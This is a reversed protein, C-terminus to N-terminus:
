HKPNLLVVNQTLVISISARPGSAEAHGDCFLFNGGSKGHNNGPRKGTTSFIDQGPNKPQTDILRDSMLLDQSENNRRGMFYAYSIRKKAISEAPPLERDKSLPCIFISTDATYRPVLLDLPQESTLANTVEPFRSGHDNAYIQLAIFM